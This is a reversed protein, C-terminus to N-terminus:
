RSGGAALHYAAVVRDAQTQSSFRECAGAPAGEALVAQVADALAEPQRSDVVRCGSLGELQAGVDGVAVSVVRVACCVAEKTVVPSGEARSTMLLVDMANLAVPVLEPSLHDLTVSTVLIGRERLVEVTASFLPHDKGPRQPSSPFGVVLGETPWGMARRAAAVDGPRFIRMDVGCPIVLAAPDGTLGALHRSVVVSVTQRRRALAISIRRYSPIGLDSGHFTVVTPGHWAGTVLQTLGFHVHVVDPAFERLKRAVAFRGTLYRWRSAVTDVHLVELEVEPHTERIAEVERQVFIGADPRAATPYMNTVM